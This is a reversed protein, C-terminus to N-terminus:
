LNKSIPDRSLSGESREEILANNWIITRKQKEIFPQDMVKYCVEWDLIPHQGLQSEPKTSASRPIMINLTPLISIKDRYTLIPLTYRLKDPAADSLVNRLEGYGSKDLCRRVSLMDDKQFPRIGIYEVQKVSASRVRIWFRHDWLIWQSWIGSNSDRQWTEVPTFRQSAAAIEVGRMPPRSLRWISEGPKMDPSNLLKDLQVQQILLREEGASHLLDIFANVRTESVLTPTDDKDQPSILTTIRSLTNAAAEPDKKCLAIFDSPFKVTMSGSRLDFRFIRINDALIAGRTELSESRKRATAMLHLLSPARLARPLKRKSRMHRLANRVTLTPDMNTKDTVFEIGSRKCTEVLRSKTYMLLPRHLQLGGPRSIAVSKSYNDESYSLGYSQAPTETGLAYKEVSQSEIAEHAGRIDECCPIASSEPMGRLGLFSTASNRILRMMITEVQDDQHHGLFLHQIDARIAAKAILRYRHYRALMEFDPLSSPDVSKPWHMTLIHSEIGQSVYADPNYSSTARKGHRELEKRVFGAERLSNYRSNHNVIFAIPVIKLQADIRPIENLLQALAM